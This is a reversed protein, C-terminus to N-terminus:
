TDLFFGDGFGDQDEPLLKTGSLLLVGIPEVLQLHWSDPALEYHAATRLSVHLNLHTWNHYSSQKHVTDLSLFLNGSKSKLDM